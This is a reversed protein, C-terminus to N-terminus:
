RAFLIAKMATPIYHMLDSALVCYETLSKAALEGALGHIYAAACAAHELPLGQACFGAIMGTLIDGTGAKALASNGTTNVFVKGNPVAIVTQHGKLLVICDLEKASDMACQIRNAVIDKIDYGMLRSLEMPHPTIMSNMPLSFYKSTSIANIADADIIIPVHNNQNKKLFGIIFDCVGGALNLGCGISIADYNKFGQALKVSEKPITGYQSQDLDFFTIDPTTASITEIVDSCSALTCYGAGVKLSSVSSLYAAGTFQTSGAINLVSGFTGKHSDQPRQPLIDLIYNRDIIKVNDNM